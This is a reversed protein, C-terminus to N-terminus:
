VKAAMDAVGPKLLRYLKIRRGRAVLHARSSVDIDRVRSTQHKEPPVPVARLHVLM